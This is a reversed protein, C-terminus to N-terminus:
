PASRLDALPRGLADNESVHLWAHHGRYTGAPCRNCTESALGEGTASNAIIHPELHRLGHNGPESTMSMYDVHRSDGWTSASLMYSLFSMLRSCGAPVDVARSSLSHRGSPRGKALEAPRPTERASSLQSGFPGSSPQGYGSLRCSRTHGPVVGADVTRQPDTKPRPCSSRRRSTTSSRVYRRAPGGGSGTRPRRNRDSLSRVYDGTALGAAADTTPGAAGIPESGQNGASPPAPALLSRALGSHGRPRLPATRSPARCRAARQSLPLRMVGISGEPGPPTAPRRQKPDRPLNSAATPGPRARAREQHSTVQDSPPM